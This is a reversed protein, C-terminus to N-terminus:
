EDRDEGHQIQETKAAHWAIFLFASSGIIACLGALDVVLHAVTFAVHLFHRM